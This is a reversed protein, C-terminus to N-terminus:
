ILDQLYQVRLLLGLPHRQKRDTRKRQFLRGPDPPCRLCLRLLEQVVETFFRQQYIRIVMPLPLKHHRRRHCAKNLKGQHARSAINVLLIQALQIILIHIHLLIKDFIQEKHCLCPQAPHKHLLRHQGIVLRVVDQVILTGRMDHLFCLIDPKTGAVASMLHIMGSVGTLDVRGPIHAQGKVIHGTGQGLMPLIRPEDGPFLGHIRQLTGIGSVQHLDSFIDPLM